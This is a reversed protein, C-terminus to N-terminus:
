TLLDGGWWREADPEPPTEGGTGGVIEEVRRITDPYSRGEQERILKIADGSVGCAYCVFGYQSVTASPTRDAHFPCVVKRRTAGKVRPVDQAGLAELVPAIPYDKAKRPPV